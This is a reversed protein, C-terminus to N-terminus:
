DDAFMEFVRAADEISGTRTLQSMRTRLEKKATKKPGKSRATGPKLVKKDPAAKKRIEKGQEKLRRYLMSERLMVILRADVVNDLQEETFGLSLGYQFLEDKEKRARQEDKWEPIAEVLKQREENIRRDMERQYDLLQQQIVREYEQQVAQRRERIRDWRAKQIAFETPNEIYLKDWDPEQPEAEALLRDLVELKRAYQEREGRVAAREAEFEKRDAALQQSKRTNHATFSFGKLAEEVTLTVEKGDVKTKVKSKLLHDPLFEVGEDEDADEDDEEDEDSDGEDEEDEESEPEDAEEPDVEDPEPEGAEAPESENTEKPTGETPDEAAFLRALTEATETESPAPEPSEHPFLYVNSTANDKM